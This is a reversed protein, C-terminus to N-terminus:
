PAWRPYEFRATNHVVECAVDRILNKKPKSLPYRDTLLVVLLLLQSYHFLMKLLSFSLFLSFSVSSTSAMTSQPVETKAMVCYEAIYGDGIVFKLLTWVHV